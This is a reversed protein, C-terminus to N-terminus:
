TRFVSTLRLTSPEPILTRLQPNLTSLNTILLKPDPMLTPTLSGHTVIKPHPMLPLALNGHFLTQHHPMPTPTLHGHILIKLDPM